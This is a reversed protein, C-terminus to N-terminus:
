LVMLLAFALQTIPRKKGTQNLCEEASQQCQQNLAMNLIQANATKDTQVRKGRRGWFYDHLWCLCMNWICNITKNQMKMLFKPTIGGVEQWQATKYKSENQKAGSKHLTKKRISIELVKDIVQQQKQFKSSSRFSRFSM